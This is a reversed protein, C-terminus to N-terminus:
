KFSVAFDTSYDPVIYLIVPVPQIKNVFKPLSTQLVTFSFLLCAIRRLSRTLLISVFLFFYTTKASFLPHATQLISLSLPSSLCRFSPGHLSLSGELDSLQLWNTYLVLLITTRTRRTQSELRLVFLIRCLSGHLASFRLKLSGGFQLYVGSIEMAFAYLLNEICIM